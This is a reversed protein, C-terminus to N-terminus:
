IEGGKGPWKGHKRKPQKKKKMEEGEIKECKSQKTARRKNTVTTLLTGANL